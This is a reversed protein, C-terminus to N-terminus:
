LVTEPLSRIRKGASAAERIQLSLKIFKMLSVRLAYQHGQAPRQRESCATAHMCSIVDRLFQGCLEPSTEAHGQDLAEPM